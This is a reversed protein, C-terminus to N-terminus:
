IVQVFSDIVKKLGAKDFLIELKNGDVSQVVGYGFKQHFVKTNVPVTTSPAAPRETLRSESPTSSRNVFSTQRGGGYVGRESRVEVAEPALEDIFRSPLTTQWQNYIRRNAAFSIQARKKGRTLGVYALRREEELGQAGSEDLARQHPFLGEEWGPLFVTEFELGKASHLTMLFIRDETIAADNEMVLAVHELFEQLSDYNELTAVLEKLNELRGPAELSKDAKWMMEYGSEALITAAMESPDIGEVMARWRALMELLGLLAKRAAPRLEDTECLRRAAEPYSIGQDRGLIHITQLAADGLGRKPTNIIREFALSDDASVALRLYAMADRIERREYFRPGGIVAYPVGFVYRTFDELQKTPYDALCIRKLEFWVARRKYPLDSIYQCGIKAQM